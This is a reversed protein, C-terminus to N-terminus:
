LKLKFVKTRQLEIKNQMNQKFYKKKPKNIDDELQKGLKMKRRHRYSTLFNTTIHHPPPPTTHHHSLGIKTNLKAELQVIYLYRLSSATWVCFLLKGKTILNSFKFCMIKTNARIDSNSVWARDIYIVAQKGAECTTIFWLVEDYPSTMMLLKHHTYTTTPTFLWELTWGEASGAVLDISSM